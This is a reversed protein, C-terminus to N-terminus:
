VDYVVLMVCARHFFSDNKWRQLMKTHVISFSEFVGRTLAYKKSFLLFLFDGNEFIDTYTLFPSLREKFTTNPVRIETFLLLIFKTSRKLFNSGDAAGAYRSSNWLQNRTIVSHLVPMRPQRVLNMMLSCFLFYLFSSNKLNCLFNQKSM